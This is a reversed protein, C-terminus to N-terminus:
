FVGGRHKVEFEFWAQAAAETRFVNGRKLHLLDSPDGDWSTEYVGGQETICTFWYMDGDKLAERMPEPLEVGNITITCPKPSYYYLFMDVTHHSRGAYGEPNSCDFVVSKSDTWVVTAEFKNSGKHMWVSGIEPIKNM